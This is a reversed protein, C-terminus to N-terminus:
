GDNKEKDYQNQIDNVLTCYVENMTYLNEREYSESANALIELSREVMASLLRVKEELLEIETM